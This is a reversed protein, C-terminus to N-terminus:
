QTPRQGPARVRANAASRAFSVSRVSAEPDDHRLVVDIEAAHAEAHNASVLDVDLPLAGAALVAGTAHLVIEARMGPTAVAAVRWRGAALPLGEIRAERARGLAHTLDGRADTVAMGGRGDSLLFGPIDVHEPTRRVGIRPSDRRVWVLGQVPVPDDGVFRVLRYHRAFRADAQMERGGRSCADAAGSTGCFVVLDPERDLVYAGDGLEHGIRGVGLNAPPHHALYRDNLGLMDLAPLKSFYPIAGAATVAVLPQAQAFHRGLLRGLSEGRDAWAVERLARLHTPDASWQLAGTGVLSLAALLPLAYRAAGHLREGLFVFAEGALWAMLCISVLLHRRGPFIDGGILIVWLSWVGLPLAVLLTRGRRAPTLCGAALGLGAPLWLPWLSRMGGWWYAAGQTIREPTFAVKSYATNPVWDGYYFLRFGLQTLYVFLGPVVLCLAGALAPRRLGCALLWALAVAVVFLPGDPRTACILGLGAGPLLLARPEAGGDREFARIAGLLSASLLVAVLPQELGGVAWIAFSGTLAMACATVTMATARALGDGAHLRVGLALTAALCAVGLARSAELLDVGLAGIGAVLLIWLLNSYGEVREGDTWTLGHGELLREAYRLSILTDDSHFAWYRSAHALLLAIGLGAIVYALANARRARAGSETRASM